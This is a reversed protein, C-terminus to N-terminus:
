TSRACARTPNASPPTPGSCPWSPAPWSGCARRGRQDQLLPQVPQPHDRHSGTRAKHMLRGLTSPSLHLPPPCAGGRGLARHRLAEARFPGLLGPQYLNRGDFVVREALKEAMEAFDPNRFQNWDTVVALADAGALAEYQSSVLEALPCDALELQARERAVPDFARVRM